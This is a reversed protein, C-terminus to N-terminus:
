CSRFIRIIDFRREDQAGDLSESKNTPLASCLEINLYLEYQRNRRAMQSEAPVNAREHEPALACDGNFFILSPMAAVLTPKRGM